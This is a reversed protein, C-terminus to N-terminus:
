NNSPAVVKEDWGWPAEDYGPLVEIATSILAKCFKRAESDEWEEHECSQYEYCRVLKITEVPTPVQGSEYKYPLVWYADNPGPLDTFTCDKYRGMVSAVCESVLMQGVENATSLDLEKRFSKDGVKVHWTMPGYKSRTLGFNVMADIHSKDVVFASM